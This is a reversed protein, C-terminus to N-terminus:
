QQLSKVQGQQLEFVVSKLESWLAAIHDEVKGQLEEVIQKAATKSSGSAIRRYAAYTASVYVGLLLRRNKPKFTRVRELALEVSGSEILGIIVWVERDEDIEHRLVGIGSEGGVREQSLRQMLTTGVAEKARLVGDIFAAVPYKPDLSTLSRTREDFSRALRNVVESVCGLRSSLDSLYCAQVALGATVAQNFQASVDLNAESLILRTIDIAGKPNDGFYFIIANRWWDDASFERILERQEIGRGAFYEQILFHRFQVRDTETVRLLGSRHLLEDFLTEFDSEHGLRRLENQIFNRCESLPVTSQHARHMTFALRCLIHDKLPAHFQQKIGKSQDWRGLMQETFKKFIETINPPIDSKNVDTSALFVTVLMPSLQVGHVHELRRLTEQALESSISRRKSVAEILKKAQGVDIPEVEFRVFERVLESGAPLGVQRSTLIIQCKDFCKRFEDIKVLVKARDDPSGVEDLADILIMAQGQLLLNHGIVPVGTGSIEMSRVSVAQELSDASLVARAQVVIPLVHEGPRSLAHEVAQYAIRRIATTKGSGGDGTILVLREKRRHISQAAVREFRPEKIVQGRVRRIKETIRILNISIYRDDTIPASDSKGSTIESVTIIDSAQLLELRLARLYPLRDADIGYWYEPFHTDTLSIIDNVDLIQINPAAVEECIHKRAPENITGSCVLLAKQPYTKVKRDTLPIRTQLATRLQAVCNTLNDRANSSLTLNGRKTQVAWFEEIGLPNETRVICDKGEELPGCTDRVFKLKLRQLLIRVVQDRFDSESLQLLHRRKKAHSIDAVDILAASESSSDQRTM